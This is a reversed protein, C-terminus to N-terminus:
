VSERMPTLATNIASRGASESFNQVAGLIGAASSEIDACHIDFSAWYYLTRDKRSAVAIVRLQPHERLVSDCIAPRIESDDLAIVLLDPLTTRVQELIDREDSVEGVIEINPQGTLAAMIVERMLRPRNAVLIRTADRM